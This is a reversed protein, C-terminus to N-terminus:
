INGVRRSLTKLKFGARNHRGGRTPTTHIGYQVPQEDLSIRWDTSHTEMLQQGHYLPIACTDGNLYLLRGGRPQYKAFPFEHTDDGQFAISVKRVRTFALVEAPHKDTRNWRGLRFAYPERTDMPPSSAGAVWIHLQQLTSGVVNCIWSLAYRDYSCIVQLERRKAESGEPEDWPIYPPKLSINSKRHHYFSEIPWSELL